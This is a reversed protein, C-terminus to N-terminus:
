TKKVWALRARHRVILKKKRSEAQNDQRRQGQRRQDPARRQVDAEHVLGPRALDVRRGHRVAAAYRDERRPALCRHAIAALAGHTDPFQGTFL